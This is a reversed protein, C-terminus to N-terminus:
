CASTGTGAVARLGATDLTEVASMESKAKDLVEVVREVAETARTEPGCIVVKRNAAADRGGERDGAGDGAGRDGADTGEGAGRLVGFETAELEEATAVDLRVCGVLVVCFIVSLENLGTEDEEVGVGDGGVERGEGNGVGGLDQV